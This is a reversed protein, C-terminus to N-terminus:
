SDLDDANVILVLASQRDEEEEAPLLDVKGPATELRGVREQEESPREEEDEEDEGEQTTIVYTEGGDGDRGQSMLSYVNSTIKNITVESAEQGRVAQRLLLNADLVEEPLQIVQGTPDLIYGEPLVFSSADQAPDDVPENSAIVQISEPFPKQYTKGQPVGQPKTKGGLGRTLGGVVGPVGLVEGSAEEKLSVDKPRLELGTELGGIPGSDEKPIKITMIDGGEGGGERREGWAAEEEGLLSVDWPIIMVCGGDDPQTLLYQSEGLSGLPDEEYVQDDMLTEMSGGGAGAGGPMAYITVKGEAGETYIAGQPLSKLPSNLPKRQARKKKRSLQEQM